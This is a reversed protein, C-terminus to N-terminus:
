SPLKEETRTGDPYTTVRTGEPRDLISTGNGYEFLTSGDPFVKTTLGKTKFEKSGDPYLYTADGNAYQFEWTGDDLQRRAPNASEGAAQESTPTATQDPIEQLKSTELPGEPVSNVNALVAGSDKIHRMVKEIADREKKHTRAIRASSREASSCYLQAAKLQEQVFTWRVRSLAKRTVTALVADMDSNGEYLERDPPPGSLFRAPISGTRQGRSWEPTKRDPGEKQTDIRACVEECLREETVTIVALPWLGFIMPLVNGPLNIVGIGGDSSMKRVVWTRGPTHGSRAVFVVEREFAEFSTYEKELVAQLTTPVNEKAPGICRKEFGHCFLESALFHARQRLCAVCHRGNVDQDHVVDSLPIRKLLVPCQPIHQDGNRASTSSFSTSVVISTLTAKKAGGDALESIFPLIRRLEKAANASSAAVASLSFSRHLM